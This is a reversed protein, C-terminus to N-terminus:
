SSILKKSKEMNLDLNLEARQVLEEYTLAEDPFSAIGYNVSIGLHERANERIREALFNTEDSKTEPCLILFLDNEDGQSVILDTRRAEETIIKAVSASVYRGIMNRQIEMVTAKIETETKKTDPRVVLLSLPHQHRRSRIFETNIEDKANKIQLVRRERVPLYVEELFTELKQMQKACEFALIIAILQIFIETVTVYLSIGNLISSDNFITLRLAFYLISWLFSYLFVSYQQLKPFLLLLVIEVIILAYVFNHIGVGDISIKYEIRELNFIIALYVLLGILALRLSRM